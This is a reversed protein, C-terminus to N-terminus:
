ARRRWCPLVRGDRRICGSSGLGVDARALPGRHGVDIDFLDLVRGLTHNVMDDLDRPKGYFAPVPPYIVAGLETAAAM